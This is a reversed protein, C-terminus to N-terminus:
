GRQERIREFEAADIVMYFGDFNRNCSDALKRLAEHDTRDVTAYEPVWKTDVEYPGDIDDMSDASVIMYTVNSVM